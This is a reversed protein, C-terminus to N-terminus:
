KTIEKELNENISKPSINHVDSKGIKKIVEDLTLDCYDDIWDGIYYLNTSGHIVGFLIPDKKKAKEAKTDEVAEGSYDYHLIVYNDFIKLKDAENKLETIEDPIIKIFNKAYTLCLRTRYKDHVSAVNYFKVIDEEKLYKNFPSTSLVLEQQLIKVYDLVKEVLATQGNSQAKSIISTYKELIEDIHKKNLKSVNQKISNFFETLNVFTIEKPKEKGMIFNKYFWIKLKLLFNQKNFTLMYELSKLVKMKEDNVNIRDQRIMVNGDVLGWNNSITISNNLIISNEVKYKPLNYDIIVDELLIIKGNKIM